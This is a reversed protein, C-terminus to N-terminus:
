GRATRTCPFATSSCVARYADDDREARRGPARRCGASDDLRSRHAAPPRGDGDVRRGDALTVRYVPQIGKEFVADVHGTEFEGPRRTSSGCACAAFGGVRTGTHTAKAPLIGRSPDTVSGPPGASRGAATERPRSCSSRAAQEPRLGQGNREGRSWMLWLEEMTKSLRASASGNVNVFTVTTDGTLCGVPTPVM